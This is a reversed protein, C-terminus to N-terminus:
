DGPQGEARRADREVEHAVPRVTQLYAWLAKLDEDTLKAIDAWPMIPALRRGGLNGTRM